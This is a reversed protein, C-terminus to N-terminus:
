DLKVRTAGTLLQQMLGKKQTQLAALYLAQQTIEADATNLVKAIAKQEEVPPFPIELKLFMSLHVRKKEELSGIAIRGYVHMYRHTKFLNIFYDTNVSSDIPKIVNYYASVSVPNLTKAKAIAGFRLNMPNYLVDENYVLRYKNNEKDKLLFSREYQTTKETLGKKITLSYLPYLEIDKSLEKREHFISDVTKIDWDCPIEVGLKTKKYGENIENVRSKGLLLNDFLAKKRNKLQTILNQSAEIAEDWTSLITAIKQQEPLPPLIVKLGFLDKSYIAAVSTTGTAIRRLKKISEFGNLCYNMYYNSYVRKDFELKLLNSNYVATDLEGRWIAVKGVLDLSNRTNFLLDGKKLLDEVIVKEGEGLFEYRGLSIKGRGINGMKILPINGSDMSNRYNGGLRSNKLIDSLLFMEWEDPIWGLKTKKYGRAELAEAGELETKDLRVEAGEFEPKGMCVEARESEPKNLHAKTKNIKTKLEM